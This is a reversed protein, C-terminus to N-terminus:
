VTLRMSVLTGWYVFPALRRKKRAESQVATLAATSPTRLFHQRADDQNSADMPHQKAIDLAGCVLEREPLSIVM